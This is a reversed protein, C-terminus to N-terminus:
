FSRAAETSTEYIEFLRDTRTLELVMAAQPSLSALKLDGDRTMLGAVRDRRMEELRVVRVDPQGDPPAGRSVALDASVVEGQRGFLLEQLEPRLQRCADPRSQARKRDLMDKISLARRAHEAVELAGRERRAAHDARDAHAGVAEVSLKGPLRGGDAFLQDRDAFDRGPLM